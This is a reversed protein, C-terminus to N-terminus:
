LDFGKGYMYVILYPTDINASTNLKLRHMSFFYLFNAFNRCAAMKHIKLIQPFLKKKPFKKKKKISAVQM